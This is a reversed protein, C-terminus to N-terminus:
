RMSRYGIESTSSRVVEDWGASRIGVEGAGYGTRLVLGGESGEAWRGSGWDGRGTPGMAEGIPDLVLQERLWANYAKVSKDLEVMQGITLLIVTALDITAVLLLYLPDVQAVAM